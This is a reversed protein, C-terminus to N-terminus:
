KGKSAHYGAKVADQESMFKGQKTAGYWRGSKHYVGTETNVWVKGSAKAAAIESESVTTAERQASGNAATKAKKTTKAANEETTTAKKETKAATGAAEHAQTTTKGEKGTTVEGAQEAANKANKKAKKVTQTATGAAQEPQAPMAQVLVLALAAVGMSLFRLHRMFVESHIIDRLVTRPAELLDAERRSM